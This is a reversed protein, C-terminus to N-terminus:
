LVLKADLVPITAAARESSDMPASLVAVAKGTEEAATRRIGCYCLVSLQLWTLSNAPLLRSFNMSKGYSNLGTVESKDPLPPMWFGEGKPFTSKVFFAQM